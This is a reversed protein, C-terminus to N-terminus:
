PRRVVIQISGDLPARRCLLGYQNVELQTGSKGVEEMMAKCYPDTKQERILDDQRVPLIEAEEQALNMVDPNGPYLPTVGGSPLLNRQIDEDVM